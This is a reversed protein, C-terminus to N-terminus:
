KDGPNPSLIWRYEIDQFEDLCRQWITELQKHLGDFASEDISPGREADHYHQALLTRAEMLRRLAPQFVPSLYPMCDWLKRAQSFAPVRDPSSGVPPFLRAAQVIQDRHDEKDDLPIHHFLVWLAIWWTSEADHICNFKFVPGRSPDTTSRFLYAQAHM